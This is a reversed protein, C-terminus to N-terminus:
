SKKGQRPIVFLFRSGKGKESEVWITGGHLNIIEKSIPLGLGTGGAGQPGVLSVQEFKNFIRKFDKPDIGIGTDAVCVELCPAECVGEKKELARVRIGIEGKAPTFKLANGILNIMVQMLRDRDALVTLAEAPMEKRFSIEKDRSWTGLSAQADNVLSKFDFETPNLRFHGAEIRSMDLLDNILKNLREVNFKSMSLFRQQDESLAGTAQSLLLEISKQVAVVPTRLEHTVLSVFHTKMEDLEKERTIDSLVAVMGVPKGNENEVVASSAKLIRKAEENKSTLEIEKTIHTDDGDDLSGKAIALLHKDKISQALSKGISEQTETDLLKEAAPNMMVVNGDKDVVVLGDALYRMVGETREKEDALRRNARVLEATATRVKEAVEEDFREALRTLKELKKKSIAVDEDKALEEEMQRIFSAVGEKDVGREELRRRLKPTLRAQDDEDVLIRTALLLGKKASTGYTDYAQELMAVMIDDACGAVIDAANPFYDFGDQKKFSDFLKQLFKAPDRKHELVIPLVYQAMWVIFKKVVAEFDGSEKASAIIAEAVGPVDHELEKFVDAPTTSINKERGSLFKKIDEFVSVRGPGPAGTGTGMGTGGTVGEEVVKEGEEVREYHIKRIKIHASGEQILPPIDIEKGSDKVTALALAQVFATLEEKELGRLFSVGDMKLLRFKEYVEAIGLTDPEITEENVFIQDKGSGAVILIEPSEKLIEDYMKFLNTLIDRSLPHVAAYLSLRKFALFFSKIVERYLTKHDM